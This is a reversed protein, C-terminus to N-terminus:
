RRGPVLVHSVPGGQGPLWRAADHTGGRGRGKCEGLLRLATRLDCFEPHGAV